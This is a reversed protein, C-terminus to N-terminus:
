APWTPTARMLFECPRARPAAGAALAEIRAVLQETYTVAQAEGFTDVTYELIEDFSDLATPAYVVSKM